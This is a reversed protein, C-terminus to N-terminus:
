KTLVKEFHLNRIRNSSLLFGEIKNKKNRQFQIIFFGEFIDKVLSALMM